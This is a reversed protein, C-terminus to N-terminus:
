CSQGDTRRGRRAPTDDNPKPPAFACTTISCPGSAPAVGARASGTSVDNTTDPLVGSRTADQAGGQGVPHLVGPGLHRQGIDGVRQIVVAGAM